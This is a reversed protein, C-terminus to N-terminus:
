CSPAPRAEEHRRARGPGGDDRHSGHQGLARDDAQLVRFRGLAHMARDLSARTGLARHADYAAMVETYLREESAACRRMVIIEAAM